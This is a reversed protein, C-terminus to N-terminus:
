RTLLRLFGRHNRRYPRAGATLSCILLECIIILSINITVVSAAKKLADSELRRKMVNIGNNNRLSAWVSLILIMATTTKIGGATSGSNGGIFMFIITLMKSAPNMSAVDVTNFGATRPTVAM